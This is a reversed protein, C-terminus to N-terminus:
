VKLKGALTRIGQSAAVKRLAARAGTMDIGRLMSALVLGSTSDELQEACSRSEAVDDASVWGWVLAVDRRVDIARRLKRVFALEGPHRALYEDCYAHLARKRMDAWRSVPMSRSAQADHKRVYMVPERLLAVDWSEAIRSLLIFDGYHPSLTTDFGGPRFVESRFVLGQMPVINRGRTVLGEIYDKGRRIEDAPIFRWKEVVVDAEDVVDFAAGSFGVRPNRELVEVHAALFGPLYVDDDHMFTTYKGRAARVGRDFNEFMPLRPSCRMVRVRPEKAAWEDIFSRAPEPSDNDLVLVEYDGFTQARVSEVVRPLYHMRGITPVLITVLPAKETSTM